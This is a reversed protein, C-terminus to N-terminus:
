APARPPLSKGPNLIGRPDFREKISRMLDLTVPDIERGVFPLKELGIGHEGSLTGGLTLVMSFMRDLAQHAREMQGADDPDALLNVHINGNGAHGFNVIRIGCEASLRELGEILEPIRSVPVVVDENIKKPAIKRLAPSLAKRTRWLDAVERATTATTIELCGAVRAAERVADVSAGQCHAPGDVEIMLLAGVGQPLGLDSFDRVMDIAAADMFELACPTVPQAMIASVARSAAHIDRYTARLTTTEEALPTLRLLAETIVALTGESGILLRTLDYGVVGKTTRTGTRIERADGTVARLGLTNERPTGYKVARPGASNYALNGGITCVAASTPDPPWFFGEAALASQLQQNTVGPEVRALRNAADIEFIRNMREFSLVVGGRDPVTAGTTGTGAGRAILPVAAQHCLAVVARVQDHGTAFVVAQPPAHRRSNDYGYSWCDGRATM